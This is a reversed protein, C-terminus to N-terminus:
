EFVKRVFPKHMILLNNHIEECLHNVNISKETINLTTSLM